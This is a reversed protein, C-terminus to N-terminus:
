DTWPDILKLGEFQFDAVNRTALTFGRSLAIAAIQTDAQDIARGLRKQDAQLKGCIEAADADFQLIRGEFLKTRTQNVVDLLPEFKSTGAQLWVGYYLEQLTISSIFQSSSERSLLFELVKQSPRPRMPETVVNTDLLIM